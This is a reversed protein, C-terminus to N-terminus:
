VCAAKRSIAILQLVQVRRKSLHSVLKLDCFLLNLFEILRLPPNNLLLRLYDRQCRLQILKFVRDSDLYLLLEIVLEFINLSLQFLLLLSGFHFM